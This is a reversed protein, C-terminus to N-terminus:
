DGIHFAMQRAMPATTKVVEDKSVNSRNAEYSHRRCIAGVVMNIHTVNYETLCSIADQQFTLEPCDYLRKNESIVSEVYGKAEEKTAPEIAIRQCVKALAEPIDESDALLVFTCGSLDLLVNVDQLLYAGRNIPSLLMSLQEVDSESFDSVGGFVFTARCTNHAILNKIILNGKTPAFCGGVCNSSDIYITKPDDFRDFAAAYSRLAINDRCVLIPVKIQGTRQKRLCVEIQNAENKREDSVFERLHVIKGEDTGNVFLALDSVQGLASREGSELLRKRDGLSIFSTTAIRSVVSDFTESEEMHCDLYQAILLVSQSLATKKWKYYTYIHRLEEQLDMHHAITYLASLYGDRENQKAYHLLLLVGDINNWHLCKEAYLKAKEEDKRLIIGEASLFATAFAVHINNAHKQNLICAKIKTATPQKGCDLVFERMSRLGQGKCNLAFTIDESLVVPTGFREQFDLARTAVLYDDYRTISSIEEREALLFLIDGREKSIFYISALEDFLTRMYSYDEGVLCRLSFFKTLMLNELLTYKM